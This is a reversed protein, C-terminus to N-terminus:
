FRHRTECPTIFISSSNLVVTDCSCDPYFDTAIHDSDGLV